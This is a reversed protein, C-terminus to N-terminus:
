RAKTSTRCSSPASGADGALRQRALVVLAIGITLAKAKLVGRIVPRYVWILFRNVPNKHEPVIRGRVFLVMLAPVVTVSLLAAAAM